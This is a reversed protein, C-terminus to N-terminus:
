EETSFTSVSAACAFACSVQPRRNVEKDALIRSSPTFLSLSRWRAGGSKEEGLTFDPLVWTKSGVPLIYSQTTRCRSSILHTHTHTPQRDASAPIPSSSPPPSSASTTHTQTFTSHSLPTLQTSPTLYFSILSSSYRDQRFHKHTIIIHQHQFRSSVIRYQYSALGPVTGPVM